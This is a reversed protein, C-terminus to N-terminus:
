LRQLRLFLMSLATKVICLDSLASQKVWDPHRSAHTIASASKVLPASLDNVARIVLFIL